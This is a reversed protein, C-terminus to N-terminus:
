VNIRHGHCHWVMITVENENDISVDSGAIVQQSTSKLDVIVSIENRDTGELRVTGEKRLSGSSGRRRHTVSVGNSPSLRHSRRRSTWERGNCYYPADTSEPASPEPDHQSITGM